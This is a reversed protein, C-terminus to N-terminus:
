GHSLEIQNELHGQMTGDPALGYHDALVDLATRLVPMGDNIPRGAQRTWEEPPLDFLCVHRAIAVLRRGLAKTAQAFQYDSSVSSFMRGHTQSQDIRPEYSGIVVAPGQASYWDSYFMRGARFQRYSIQKRRLYRDLLTQTRVRARGHRKTAGQEIRVGQQKHMEATGMDPGDGLAQREAKRRQKRQKADASALDRTLALMEQRVLASTHRIGTEKGTELVPQLRQLREKRRRQRAAQLLDGANKM